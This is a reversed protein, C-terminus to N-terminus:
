NNIIEEFIDDFCYFGKKEHIWEAALVAGLAFGSRSRSTCKVEVTEAPFDFVAAHTGPIEGARISAVHLDSPYIKGEPRDFIMNSKKDLKSLLKEGLSIATGSPSDIKHRHHAEWIAADSGPISNSLQAADQAVRFFMQVAPSFNSAWIFGIGSKLVKKEISEKQNEWGTTGIVITKGLKCATDINQLVSDPTSFDIYVDSEREKSLTDCTADPSHPDIIESVCHSRQRVIKAILKGM